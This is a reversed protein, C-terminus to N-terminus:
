KLRESIKGLEIAVIVAIVTVTTAYILMAPITDATGFLKKFIAKITDNWSLAAILGFAATLLATMKEVIERKVKKAEEIKKKNKM